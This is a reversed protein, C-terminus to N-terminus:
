DRSVTAEDPLFVIEGTRILDLDQIQPNYKAFVELLKHDCYGFRQVLLSSVSDGRKATVKITGTAPIGASAPASPGAEFVRREAAPEVVAPAPAAPEVASESRVAVPASEPRVAAELAPEPRVTAELAPEPRVDAQGTAVSKVTEQEQYVPPLPNAAEQTVAAADAMNREVEAIGSLGTEKLETRSFGALIAGAVIVTTIATFPWRFLWFRKHGSLDSIVEKVIKRSVPNKHYGFGTMLSNDCVINILRPIGRAHRVIRKLAGKTFVQNHFGSAKMLRHHIYALSEERTLPKIKCLVAIRQKLQRLEPLNLLSELEPQGVMLIQILKDKSTELNSLMRLHELTEVPMNQAEDIILVVNRDNKYEEILYHHLRNVQEFTDGEVEPIGLDRFMLKLLAKFSVGANFLYVVKLRDPNIDELYARLITTKGVGVEGIIALFGKRQEIGYIIAASAERHSPSLFLFEPDPTIHFPKKLFRYYNSYM